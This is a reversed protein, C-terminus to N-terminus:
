LQLLQLLLVQHLELLPPLLLPLLLIAQLVLRTLFHFVLQLPQQRKLLV